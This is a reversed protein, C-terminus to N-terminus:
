ADVVLDFVGVQKSLGAPHEQGAAAAKQANAENAAVLDAPAGGLPKMADVIVYGLRYSGSAICEKLVWTWSEANPKIKNRHDMEELLDMMACFKNENPIPKAAKSEASHIKSLTCNYTELNPPCNAVNMEVLLEGAQDYYKVEQIKKMWPACNTDVEYGFLDYQKTAQFRAAVGTTCAVTSVRRFM